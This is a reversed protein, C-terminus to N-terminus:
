RGGDVTARLVWTHLVQHIARLREDIRDLREAQALAALASAFAIQQDITLKEQDLNYLLDVTEAITDTM